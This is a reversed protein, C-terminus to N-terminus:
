AARGTMDAIVDEIRSLIRDVQEQTELKAVTRSKYVVSSKNNEDIRVASIQLEFTEPKNV